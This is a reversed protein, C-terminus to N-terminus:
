LIHVPFGSYSLSRTRVGDSRSKQGSTVIGGDGEVGGGGGSDGGVGDCGEGAGGVDDGVGIRGTTSDEGEGRMSGVEVESGAYVPMGFVSVGRGLYSGRGNGIGVVSPTGNSRNPPPPLVAGTLRRQPALASYRRQGKVRPGLGMLEKLAHVLTGASPRNAPETTWCSEALRRYESPVNSIFRPRMGERVVRSSIDSENVGSYLRGGYVVQWMIIGFAYIDLSADHPVGKDTNLVEPAMHTITGHTVGKPIALRGGEGCPEMLRVLGFDSLKATFGRPDRASYRLLVNSPKLDCHVLRLSHLHRLALAVELLTALIARMNPQTTGYLGLAPQRFAGRVIADALSGADCYEMCIVMAPPSLAMAQQAASGNSAMAAQLDTYEAFHLGTVDVTNLQCSTVNSPYPLLTVRPPPGASALASAADGASQRLRAPSGRAAPSARGGGGGGGGGFEPMASAQRQLLPPHQHLHQLATQLRTPSQIRMGGGSPLRENSGGRREVHVYVDTFFTLVQVINPHCVSVSVTLEFADHLNRALHATGAATGAAGTEEDTNVASTAAYGQALANKGMRPVASSATGHPEYVIKIAVETGDYQGRYVEGYGGQGIKELVEIAALEEQHEIASGHVLRSAQAAALREHLGSVLPARRLGGGVPGRVSEVTFSPAALMTRMMSGLRAGGGSGIAHMADQAGGPSCLLSSLFAVTSAPGTSGTSCPRVNIGVGSGAVGCISALRAVVPQHAAAPTALQAVGDVLSPPLIIDRSAGSTSQTVMGLARLSTLITPGTPRLPGPGAAPYPPNVPLSEPRRPSEVEMNDSLRTTITTLLMSSQMLSGDGVGCGATVAAAAAAAAPTATASGGVDAARPAGAVSIGREYLRESARGTAAATVLIAAPRYHGGAAAGGGVSAAAATLQQALQLPPSGPAHVPSCDPGLPVEPHLSASLRPPRRGPEVKAPNLLEEHLYLWEDVLAASCLRAHVHPSLLKLLQELELTVARLLQRPLVAGYVCYAGLLPLGNHRGSCVAISHVARSGRSFVIDRPYIRAEQLYMTCDSIWLGCNKQLCEGLLTNELSLSHGRAGGKNCNMQAGSTNNNNNVANIVNAVNNTLIKSTPNQVGTTNSISTTNTYTNVNGNSVTTGEKGGQCGNILHGGNQNIGGGVGVGVAVIAAASATAPAVPAVSAPYTQNLHSSPSAAGATNFSLGCGAVRSGAVGGGGGGGGVGGAAATTAAMPVGVREQLAVPMWGARDLLQDSAAAAASASASAATATVAAAASAPPADTPFICSRTRGGCNSLSPPARFGRVLSTSSGQPDCSINTGTLRDRTLQGQLQNASVRGADMSRRSTSPQLMEPVGGTPGATESCVSLRTFSTRRQPQEEFVVAASGDTRILALRLVPPLHTTAVVLDFAGRRVARVLEDINRALHVETMISTAVSLQRQQLLLVLTAAVVGLADPQWCAPPLSGQRSALTLVGVVLEGSLLPVSIFHRLGYREHLRLWDLPLSDLNGPLSAASPSAPPASARIAYPGSGCCRAQSALLVAASLSLDQTINYPLGRPLDEVGVGCASLTSFALGGNYVTHLSVSEADFAEQVVGLAADIRDLWAEEYGGAIASIVRQVQAWAVRQQLFEDKSEAKEEQFENRQPGHPGSRLEDIYGESSNNGDLGARKLSPRFCCDLFQRMRAHCLM